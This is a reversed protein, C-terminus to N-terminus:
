LIRANCDFFTYSLNITNKMPAYDLIKLWSYEIVDWEKLIIPDFLQNGLIIFLKTAM